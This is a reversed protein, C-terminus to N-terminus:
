IANSKRDTGREGRGQEDLEMQEGRKCEYGQACDECCYEKRNKVVPALPIEVGCGDCFVTDEIKVM